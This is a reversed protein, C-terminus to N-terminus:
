RRYAFPRQSDVWGLLIRRGSPRTVWFPKGPVLAEAGLFACFDQFDELGEQERSLSQVIMGVFDSSHADAAYIAVTLRQFFKYRLEQPPPNQIELANCVAGLREQGGGKRKERWKQISLGFGYYDTAVIGIGGMGRGTKVRAFVDCRDPQKGGPIAFKLGPAAYELEADMGLIESIEPPLGRAVEWLDITGHCAGNMEPLLAKNCPQRPWNEFAALPPKKATMGSM